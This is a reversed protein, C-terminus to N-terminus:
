RLTRAGFVRGATTGHVANIKITIKEIGKTLHIPISYSKHYFKGTAGGKLQETSIVENNVEIDFKRDKDDGIYSLLLFNPTSPDTMMEFTFYHNVRAERGKVGMAESVYSRETAFLKHDREPQMEGVRFYDVTKESIEKEEKKIKLYEEKQKEWQDQTFYDWYVNYHGHYTDYFPKLEVDHPKGIGFTKFNLGSTTKTVWDKVPLRQDTLLVPIGILPDPMSDGLQGALVIPGYLISIREKNDPMAETHLAMEMEIRINDNNKWGRGFVAYGQQIYDPNVPKSNIYYRINGNSWSPVRLKLEFNQKKKLKFSLTTVGSEPFTTMQSVKINRNKWNLESPIFLNVYLSGNSGEMYIGEGYKTHNEIGTGVCCTFTETSDSFKKKAGMRLPMFYTMMATGPHQSSLIHNYLAREYYDGLESSPQLALLQRTLKLMNYTNCTEATNDSLRDNLKGAEGCYEYNSNGGIVYTHNKVMTKWFFAAITSDKRNGTFIYQTASGIAKPVNTNSHKGPLPDVSESLPKMVFDDFFKYSLELYYPNNTVAYLQALIDNMGGWECKLMEQIQDRNLDKLVNGTWHAMRELAKLAKTNDCLLYADMLGTMVKHVTYWPSWGGNLDFGSTKIEGRAVKGFIEDENPIAGVYGTKRANQCIILEDVIYDIRKKYEQNSTSSFMMACASLYHGLTHGSVGSSEWGGYVSDKPNLGANKYFRHLLRDPQLSLLYGADNTMAQYFRSGPLLRVQSLPFSYAKVPAVPLVKIKPNSREPVFSQALCHLASFIFVTLIFVIKQMAGLKNDM